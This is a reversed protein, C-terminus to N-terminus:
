IFFFVKTLTASLLVTQRKDSNFINTLEHPYNTTNSDKSDEKIEEAPPVEEEEENDFHIHNKKITQKMLAM